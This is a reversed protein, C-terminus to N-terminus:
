PWVHPTRDITEQQEQPSLAVFFESFGTKRVMLTRHAEPNARAEELKERTAFTFGVHQGGMAFFGKALAALVDPGPRVALRLNLGGCICRDLPLRAVSRLLALPGQRDAGHVPSQNESVAEGARRGDPTAGLAAGFANHHELSYLSSMMRFGTERGAKGAADLLAEAARRTWGDAEENGNGFKPM